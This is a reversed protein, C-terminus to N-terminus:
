RALNTARTVSPQPWNPSHWTTNSSTKSRMWPVPHAPQDSHVILTELSLPNGKPRPDHPRRRSHFYLRRRALSRSTPALELRGVRNVPDFSRRRLLGTDIVIDFCDTPLRDVLPTALVVIVPALRNSPSKAIEVYIRDRESIATKSHLSMLHVKHEQSLNSLLAANLSEIEEIGPLIVLCSIDTQHTLPVPKNRTPTHAPHPAQTRSPCAEPRTSSFSNLMDLLCGICDYLMRKPNKLDELSKVTQLYKIPLAIDHEDHELTSLIVEPCCIYDVCKKFPPTMLRTLLILRLKPVRGSLMLKKLLFILLETHASPEALDEIIVISYKSLLPDHMIERSLEDGTTFLLCTNKGVSGNDFPLQCAIQNSSLSTGQM